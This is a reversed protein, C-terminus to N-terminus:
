VVTITCKDVVTWGYEIKLFNSAIIGLMCFWACKIIKFWFIVVLVLDSINSIWNTSYYWILQSVLAAM